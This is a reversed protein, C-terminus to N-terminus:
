IGGLDEPLNKLKEGFTEPQSVDLVLAHASGGIEAALAELKEQNRAALVVRAGQKALLRAIGEGIGQSAGTVLATKGDLRFM